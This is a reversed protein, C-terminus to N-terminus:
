QFNQQYKLLINMLHYQELSSSLRVALVFYFAHAAGGCRVPQLGAGCAIRCM